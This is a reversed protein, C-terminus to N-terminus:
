ATEPKISAPEAASTATMDSTKGDVQSNSISPSLSNKIELQKMSDVKDIAELAERVFEPYASEILDKATVCPEGNIVLGEVAKLYIQVKPVNYKQGLLHVSEENIEDLADQIEPPVRFGGASLIALEEELRKYEESSEVNESQKARLKEIEAERKKEFAVQEQKLSNRIKDYKKQLLRTASRFEATARDLNLRKAYTAAHIVYVVGPAITSEIREENQYSFGM